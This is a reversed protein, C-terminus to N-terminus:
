EYSGRMVASTYFTRTMTSASSSATLQLAVRVLDTDAGTYETFTLSDVYVREGTLPGQDVGNVSVHVAGGVISFLTTTAGQVLTLVGPTTGLTSAMGNVSDAGRIDRVMRELSVDAAHTLVRETANRVLVTNLSLYATVSAGSVLVLISFYVLMEILSFGRAHKYTTTTHRTSM